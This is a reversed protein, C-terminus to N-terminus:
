VAFIALLIFTLDAGNVIGIFRGLMGGLAAVTFVTQMARRACSSSALARLLFRLGPFQRGLSLIDGSPQSGDGINPEENILLPEM